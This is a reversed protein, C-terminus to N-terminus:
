RELRWHRAGSLSGGSGKLDMSYGGKAINKLIHDDSFDDGSKLSGQKLLQEAVDIDKSTGFTNELQQKSAQGLIGQSGQSSIFVEFALHHCIDTLHISASEFLAYM